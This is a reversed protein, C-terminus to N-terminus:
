TTAERAASRLAEVFLRCAHEIDAAGRRVNKLGSSRAEAELRSVANRVGIAGLTAAAGRLGHLAHLVGKLDGGDAGDRIEHLTRTVDTEFLQAYFNLQMADGGTINDILKRDIEGPPVPAFTHRPASKDVRRPPAKGLSSQPPRASVAPSPRRDRRPTVFFVYAGVAGLTL